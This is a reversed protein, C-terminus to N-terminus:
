PRLSASATSTVPELVTSADSSATSSATPHDGGLCRRRAGVEARGEVGGGDCEVEPVAGLDLLPRERDLDFALAGVLEGPVGRVQRDAREGDEGCGVPVVEPE